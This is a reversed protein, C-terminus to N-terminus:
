RLKDRGRHPHVSPQFRRAYLRRISNTASTAFSNRVKAATVTATTDEVKKSM